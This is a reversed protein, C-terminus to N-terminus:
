HPFIESKFKVNTAQQESFCLLCSMSRSLQSDEWVNVYLRRYQRKLCNGCNILSTSRDRNQEQQQEEEIKKNQINQGTGGQNRVNETVQGSRNQM